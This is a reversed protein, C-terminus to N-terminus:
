PSFYWTHPWPTSPTPLVCTVLDRGSPNTPRLPEATHPGAANLFMLTYPPIRKWNNDVAQQYIFATGVGM